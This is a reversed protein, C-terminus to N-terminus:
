NDTLDKLLDDINYESKVKWYMNDSYEAKQEEHPKLLGKESNVYEDKVKNQELDKRETIDENSRSNLSVDVFEGKSEKTEEKNDEDDEESEEEPQNDVKLNHIELIEEIGGKDDLEEDSDSKREAVLDEIDEEVEEEGNDDNTNSSDFLRNIADLEEKSVPERPHFGNEEPDEADDNKDEEEEDNNGLLPKDFPNDSNESENTQYYDSFLGGGGNREGGLPKLIINETPKIIEQRFREWDPTSNLHQEIEKNTRAFQILTMSLKYVYAFSGKNASRSSGKFYVKSDDGMCILRKVLEVKNLLHERLENYWNDLIYLLINSVKLHLMNNWEHIEFATMLYELTNKEKLISQIKLNNLKIIAEIFEVIQLKHIGFV